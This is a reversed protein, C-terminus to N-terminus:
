VFHPGWTQDVWTHEPGWWGSTALAVANAIVLDPTTTIQVSLFHFSATADRAGPSDLVAYHM